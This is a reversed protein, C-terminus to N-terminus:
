HGENGQLLEKAERSLVDLINIKDELQTQLAQSKKVREEPTLETAQLQELLAPASQFTWNRLEGLQAQFRTWRASFQELYIVREEVTELTVHLRREIETV